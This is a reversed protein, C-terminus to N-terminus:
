KLISENTYNNKIAEASYNYRYKSHIARINHRKIMGNKIM